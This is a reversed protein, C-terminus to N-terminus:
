SEAKTANTRIHTVTGSRTKEVQYLITLTTKGERNLKLYLTTLYIINNSIAKPTLASPRDNM